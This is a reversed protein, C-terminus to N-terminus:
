MYLLFIFNNKLIDAQINKDPKHNELVQISYKLEYCINKIYKGNKYGVVVYISFRQCQLIFRNKLKPISGKLKENTLVAQFLIRNVFLVQLIVFFMLCTAVFFMKLIETVM